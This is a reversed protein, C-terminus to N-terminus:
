KKMKLYELGTQLLIIQVQTLTQKIRMIFYQKSMRCFYAKSKQRTCINATFTYQIEKATIMHMHFLLFLEATHKM